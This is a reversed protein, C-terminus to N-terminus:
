HETAAALYRDRLRRKYLKGAPSRPLEREFDISRPCKFAALNAKCYDILETEVVEGAAAPDVLEVAAKVEEGYEPHPIGFVAVDAVAPHRGLVDEVEQPYINVGGAIITFDNRGTLYLYGDEDLHGIDGVTSWGHEDYAKKTKETDNHYVIPRVDCEFRITGTAGPPLEAGTTEDTIHITGVVARGVSGPHQRWEHSDIVTISGGESGGYYELLIPGWWDIMQEKVWIPCPAAAHIARRHTKGQYAERVGDPLRLLRIFMTPVWQSHTVHYADIARLATEPDFRDFIVATGGLATIYQVFRGAAGHYLPAGPSLYVTSDDLHLARYFPANVPPPTAPDGGPLPYVGGKPRGTTGSSYTMDAGLAEDAIRSTPYDAVWDYDAFDEQPDGILLATEVSRCDARISRATAAHATSTVLGRAGCDNVIYAMEAPLLHYNIPTIVLGSRLAAWVVELYHRNNEMLVAVHDGVHLGRDRWFHALQNSREDLERYTVIEGTDGMIYAPKDPTKEAWVGPYM